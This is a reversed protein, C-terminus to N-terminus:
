TIKFRHQFPQRERKVKPTRRTKRDEIGAGVPRRSEKQRTEDKIKAAKSKSVKQAHQQHLMLTTTIGGRTVKM